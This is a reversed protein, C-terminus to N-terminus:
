FAAPEFLGGAQALQALHHDADGFMMDIMTLRKFYHGAKYEMTLGIGGHLQIAQQGIFRASRGIQVKAASMAKSRERSDEHSAMMTAYLAMSRAQELMMLMDVARHQLVQFDGIPRGFQRRQKLHDITLEQLAAMAGVAEACLAAIAEDIVRALMTFDNGPEGIADEPGVAVQEFRIEAARLGDQGTYGRRSVGKAHPDVLFLGIGDAERTSGGVRASVILKDARDGNLVLGKEGDIIWGGDRRRATTAVDFLDFRAQREHHAMALTIEGAVIQPIYHDRLAQRASRRLLGGGLIVTPLFPELMLARGFANMVIMTEVATGGLGGYKEDFALGLLGLDAYRRWMPRSWGEPHTQYNKRRAFDYQEAMLRDVSAEILRQDESLDFEM